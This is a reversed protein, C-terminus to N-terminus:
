MCKHLHVDHKKTTDAVEQLEEKNTQWTRSSTSLNKSKAKFKEPKFNQETFPKEQNKKTKRPKQINNHNTITTTITTDYYLIQM